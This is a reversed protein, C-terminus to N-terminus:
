TVMKTSKFGATHTRRLTKQFSLRESKPQVITVALCSTDAPEFILLTGVRIDMDKLFRSWGSGYTAPSFTLGDVNWLQFNITWETSHSM